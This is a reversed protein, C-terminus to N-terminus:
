KIPFIYKLIKSLINDAVKFLTKIKDFQFFIIDEKMINTIARKRKVISPHLSIPYFEDIIDNFEVSVKQLIDRIRILSSVKSRVKYGISDLASQLANGYGSRASFEDAEYEATRM